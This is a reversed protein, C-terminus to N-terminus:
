QNTVHIDEEQSHLSKDDLGINPPVIGNSIALSSRRSLNYSEYSKLCYHKFLDSTYIMYLCYHYCRLSISKHNRLKIWFQLKDPAIGDSIPFMDFIWYKYTQLLVFGSVYSSVEDSVLNHYDVHNEEVLPNVSLLRTPANGGVIPRRTSIFQNSTASFRRLPVRGTDLLTLMPAPNSLRVFALCKYTHDIQSETSCPLSQM